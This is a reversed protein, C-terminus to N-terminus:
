SHKNSQHVKHLFLYLYYLCIAVTVGIGLLSGWAVPDNFILELM